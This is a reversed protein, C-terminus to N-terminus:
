PIRPHLSWTLNAPIICYWFGATGIARMVEPAMHTTCADSMWIVQYRHLHGELVRKTLKVIETQVRANNWGSQRRLVYVNEPLAARVFVEDQKRLVNAGVIMVQPLLPQLESDTCIIAVLTFYLRSDARTAPQRPARRRPTRLVNGRQHTFCVPIPSEDLNIYLPQKDTERM